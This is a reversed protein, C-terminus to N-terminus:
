EFPVSWEAHTPISPGTKTAGQAIVAMQTQGSLIQSLSIAWVTTPISVVGDDSGDVMSGWNYAYLTTGSIQAAAFFAGNWSVPSSPYYAAGHIYEDVYGTYSGGDASIVGYSCNNPGDPCTKITLSLGNAAGTVWVGGTTYGTGRHYLISATASVTKGAMARLITNPLAQATSGPVCNGVTDIVMGAPSTSGAYGPLNPCASTAIAPQGRVSTSDEAYSNASVAALAAALTAFHMRAYRM